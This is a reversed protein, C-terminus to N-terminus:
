NRILVSTMNSVNEIRMILTLQRSGIFTFFLLLKHFAFCISCLFSAAVFKPALCIKGIQLRVAKRGISTSFFIYRLYFSNLQHFYNQLRNLNQQKKKQIKLPSIQHCLQISVIIISV